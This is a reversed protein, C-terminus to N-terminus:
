GGMRRGPMVLLDLQGKPGAGFAAKLGDRFGTKYNALM